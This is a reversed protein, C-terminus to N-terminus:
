RENEYKAEEREIAELIIIADAISSREASSLDQKEKLIRRLTRVALGLKMDREKSNTRPTRTSRVDGLEHCKHEVM